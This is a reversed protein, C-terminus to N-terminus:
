KRVTRYFRQAQGIAGPEVADLTGDAAATKTAFTQWSGPLGTPSSQIDYSVGPTGRFRVVPITGPENLIILQDLPPIRRSKEPEVVVTASAFGGWGDTITYSFEDRVSPGPPAVYAIWDGGLGIAVTAGNTSTSDILHLRIPSFWDPDSDNKLVLNTVSLIIQDTFRTVVDNVAVPPRNTIPTVVVNDLWVSDAGASGSVDKTYIWRLFHPGAGFAARVSKKGSFGTFEAKLEDDLYFRLYDGPLSEVWCDFTIQAPGVMTTDLPAGGFDPTRPSKAASGGTFGAGASTTWLYGLWAYNTNDLAQGLDTQGPTLFVQDLWAVANNTAQAGAKLEWRAPHNGPPIIFFSTYFTVPGPEGGIRGFPAPVGDITLELAADPDGQVFSKVQLVAPGTLVTQLWSSGDPQLAPTRAADIGDFTVNTQFFWGDSPLGTLSRDSGTSWALNPEDLAEVLGPNSGVFQIEDLWAQPVINDAPDASALTWRVFAAGADVLLNTSAWNTGDAVVRTVTYLANSAADLVEARLEDTNGGAIKWWFSIEGASPVRTLLTWQCYTDSPLPTTTLADFGDHSFGSQGFWGGAGPDCDSGAAWTLDPADAAAGLPVAGAVSVLVRDSWTVGNGNTIRLQYYGADTVGAPSRSFSQWTAFPIPFGDKFWQFDWPLGGEVGAELLLDDGPALSLPQPQTTILPRAPDFLFTFAQSETPGVSNTVICTYVGAKAPTFPTLDLESSIAGPVNTGNRTWQYAFPATGRPNVTLVIATNSSLTAPSSYLGSSDVISFSHPPTSTVVLTVNTSVIGGFQNSAVLHWTGADTPLVPYFAQYVDSSQWGAHYNTTSGSVWWFTLPKAGVVVSRLSASYGEGVTLNSPPEIFEPPRGKYNEFRVQDVWAADGVGPKISKRFAFILWNTGAPVEFFYARWVPDHVFYGINSLGLTLLATFGSGGSVDSKAWFTLTGSNTLQTQLWAYDGPLPTGSWAADVGDHTDGGGYIGTWTGPGPGASNTAVWVLGPADLADGLSQARTVFALALSVAAGIMWVKLTRGIARMGQYNM